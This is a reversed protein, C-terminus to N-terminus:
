TTVDMEPDHSFQRQIPGGVTQLTVIIGVSFEYRHVRNQIPRHKIFDLPFYWSIPSPSSDVRNSKTPGSVFTTKVLSTGSEGFPSAQKQKRQTPSGFCIALALDVGGPGLTIPTRGASTPDLAIRIGIGSDDPAPSKPILLGASDMDGIVDWSALEPNLNGLATLNAPEPVAGATDLKLWSKSQYLEAATVSGPPQAQSESFFATTHDFDFLYNMLYM